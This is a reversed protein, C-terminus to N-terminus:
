YGLASKMHEPTYCFKGKISKRAEGHCESCQILDPWEEGYPKKYEFTHGCLECIYDDFM